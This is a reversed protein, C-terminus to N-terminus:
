ARENELRKINDSCWKAFGKVFEIREKCRGNKNYVRMGDRFEEPCYESDRYDSVLYYSKKSALSQDKTKTKLIVQKAYFCFGFDQHIHHENRLYKNAVARADRFDQRCFDTM